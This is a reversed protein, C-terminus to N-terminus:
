IQKVGYLKVTGADFGGSAAQAFLRLANITEATSYAGGGFYSWAGTSEWSPASHHSFFSYKSSNGLNYCYIYGTIYDGADAYALNQVESENTGKLEGFSNTVGCYQVANEYGSSEYSSGADNSVRMALYENNVGSEWKVNYQIQHVDYQSEQLSTLDINTTSSSISITDILQLSGGWEGDKQVQLAESVSFVGSNNLQQNPTTGLYGFPM